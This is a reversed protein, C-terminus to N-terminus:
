EVWASTTLPYLARGEYFGSDDHGAAVDDGLMVQTISCHVGAPTRRLREFESASM